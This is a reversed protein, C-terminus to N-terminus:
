SGSVYDKTLDTWMNLKDLAAQERAEARRLQGKLDNIDISRDRLKGEMAGLLESVTRASLKEVKDSLEYVESQLEDRESLLNRIYMGLTDGNVMWGDQDNYEVDEPLHRTMQQYRDVIECLRRIVPDDSHWYRNVLETDTLTLADIIM